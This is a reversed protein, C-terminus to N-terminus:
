ILLPGHARMLSERILEDMGCVNTANFKESQTNRANQM